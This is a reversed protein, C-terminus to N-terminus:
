FEMLDKAVLVQGPFRKKVLEKFRSYEDKPDATAPLHTLVVTEVGAGVAMDALQEPSLHEETMHRITSEQQAPTMTQWRGIQIQRAKFEEVSNVEAVLLDAGKALAMVPDSPGTDGTFVISRDSTDFRLAYSKYKAHLPNGPAFQFHNNEAATVKINADQFIVGPEMNHGRFIKSAMVALAGNAVRLEANVDLFPLIGQVTEATGPPGYINVPKTRNSDYQATLLAPLGSTHDSHAHTIFITDIDRFGIQARTLRRTVGDGADIIYPIGKVILVNSAQARGTTPIPGSRTGLIILRTGTKSQPITQARAVSLIVPLAVVGAAMQLFQRRHPFKM